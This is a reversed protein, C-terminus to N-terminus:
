SGRSASLSQLALPDAGEAAFRHAAAHGRTECQQERLPHRLPYEDIRSTHAPRAIRQQRLYAM